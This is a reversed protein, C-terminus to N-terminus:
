NLSKKNKLLSLYVVVYLLLYKEKRMLKFMTSDSEFDKNPMEAVCRKSIVKIMDYREKHSLKWKPNFLLMMSKTTYQIFKDCIMDYVQKNNPNWQYVYKMKYDNLTSIIEFYDIPFKKFVGKISNLQHTYLVDDIFVVKKAVDQYRINFVEDQARRLQPFEIHNEKVVSLSYIKNWPAGHIELEKSSGTFLQYNNRFYDGSFEKAPYKHVVDERDEYVFRCGFIILDCGTEKFKNVLIEISNEAMEDDADPFYIYEGTAVKIGANRAPGAGQNEQHIVKIRNDSESFSKCIKLSNDKSGDDVLIFEINRYTQNLMAPIAKELKDGMNFIPMVISVKSRKEM